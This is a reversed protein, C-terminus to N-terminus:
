KPIKHTFKREELEKNLEPDYKMDKFFDPLKEDEMFQHSLITSDKLLDKNFLKEKDVDETPTFNPLFDYPVELGKFVHLNKM